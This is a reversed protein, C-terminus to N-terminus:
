YDMRYSKYGQGGELDEALRRAQRQMLESWSIKDPREATDGPDRVPRQTWREYHRIITATAGAAATVTGDAETEFDGPMLARQAVLTVSLAEAVPGRFEEALDTAAVSPRNATQHLIGFGPHLGASLVANGMEATLLSATMSLIVDFGTKPPQRTRREFRWDDPLLQGLVAWYAKAGQAEYAMLVPIDDATTTKRLIRNLAECARIVAVDKRKRNLRRLLARQNHVRAEVFQRALMLRRDEDLIAAAQALHRKGHQATNGLASGITRGDSGVFHVPIRHGMLTRLAQPSVEAGPFVVMDDIAAPKIRARLQGAEAINVAEGSGIQASTGDTALYLTRRAPPRFRSGESEETEPEPLANLNDPADFPDSIVLSRVFLHGLFRLGDDFHVIRTKQPHLDLDFRALLRGAKDRAKEAAVRSQSLIVFDDAYRVLRDAGKEFADDLPDLYLNALVPSIPSGQALGRGGSGYHELWLSILNIFYHDDVYRALETMLREHAVSDFCAHIDADVAWRFGERRLRDVAAVAQQVSRGPRYGFSLANFSPELGAGLLSASATQIVRDRVAPIRLRRRGGSPKPIDVVRAPRPVYDDQM